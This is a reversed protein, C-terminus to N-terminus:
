KKDGRGRLGEINHVHVHEGQHIECTALGIIEGYKIVPEEKRINRIAFKHGAPIEQLIRVSIERNEAKLSVADDKKLRMIATAVNDRTDILIAASL